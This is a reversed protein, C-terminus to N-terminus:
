RCSATTSSRVHSGCHTLLGIGGPWDGGQYHDQTSVGQSVLLSPETELDRILALVAPMSSLVRHHLRQHGRQVFSSWYAVLMTIASSVGSFLKMSTV